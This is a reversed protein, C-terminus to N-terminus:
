ACNTSNQTMGEELVLCRKKCDNLRTQVTSIERLRQLFTNCRTQWVHLTKQFCEEVRDCAAFIQATSRRRRMHEEWHAGGSLRETGM